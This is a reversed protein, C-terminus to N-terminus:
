AVLLLAIIADDNQRKQLGVMLAALESKADSISSMASTPTKPVEVGSVAKIQYPDFAAVKRIKAAAQRKAKKTPKNEAAEIAALADKVSNFVEAKFGERIAEKATKRKRETPMGGGPRRGTAGNLSAISVVSSSQVDNANLAHTQGLAPSSVESLSEVNDATLGPLGEALAPSSVESASEADAALLAHGQGILP